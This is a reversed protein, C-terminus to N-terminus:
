RGEVHAKREKGVPEKVDRVWINRFRVPNGHYMLVIPAKEPHKSYATAHDFHTSGLIETHNQVVVGNHIVTVFGPKALKGDKEFRPSTFVIDYSQWEGPKRMANVMPPRQNYVSAAQGEPYTPNDYSDLVQIEYRAGALGIGNNGRGQGKGKAPTPEAFEVHLQYDGFDKKTQIVGKVTFAGDEDVKWGKAGSWEDFGKGDFLVVADSPPDRDEKGPTVVTPVPWETGNLYRQALADIALVGLVLLSIALISRRLM